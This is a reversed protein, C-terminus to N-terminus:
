RDVPIPLPESIIRRSLIVSSNDETDIFREAQRQSSFFRCYHAGSPRYVDLKYQWRLRINGDAIIKEVGETDFSEM